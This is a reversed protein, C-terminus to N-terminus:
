SSLQARFHPPALCVSGLPLQAAEIRQIDSQLAEEPQGKEAFLALAGQYDGDGQLRLLRNTLAEIAAPMHEPHVRYVGTTADRSYAGADKFVNLQLVSQRGDYNYLAAVLATVYLALVAEASMHGARHQQAAIWLGVLNAKGEEVAHNLDGLVPPVPQHEHLTYKIGLGHALEHLLVFEFRATHTVYQRQDPAILLDALPLFIAHFRAQLVNEVLLSRVGKQVQVVEDNPWAIGSPTNCADLGAAYALTYVQLESASNNLPPKYQDPVPLSAQFQPLLPKYHALAATAAQAKVLVSASYATKIGLLRDEIEMPGILIDLATDQPEMWAFDSAQYDDTLLATARANLYNKLYRSQAHDAAQRLYTAAHQVHPQFAVHYPLAGLRGHADRRVLTYPSKLTPDTLAATEFEEPTMDAPYYNAGLPKGGVGDLIPENEHLRDWPGYNIRVYERTEAELAMAWLTQPDGYEQEWYPRDMAQAARVLWPLLERENDTLPPHHANLPIPVLRRLRDTVNIV